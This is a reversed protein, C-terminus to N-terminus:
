TTFEIWHTVVDVRRMGMATARDGGVEDWDRVYNDAQACDRADRYM